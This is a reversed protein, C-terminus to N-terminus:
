RPYQKPCESCEKHWHGMDDYCDPNRCSYDPPRNYPGCEGTQSLTHDTVSCYKNPLLIPPPLPSPSFYVQLVVVQHSRQLQRVRSPHHHGHKHLRHPQPPKPIYLTSRLAHSHPHRQTSNHHLKLYLLLYIYKTKPPKIRQIPIHLNHPFLHTPLQTQISHKHNNTLLTICIDPQSIIHAYLGASKAASCLGIINKGPKSHLLAQLIYISKAKMGYYSVIPSIKSLVM